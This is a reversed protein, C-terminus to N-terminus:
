AAPKSLQLQATTVEDPHLKRVSMQKLSGDPNLIILPAKTLHGRDNDDIVSNYGKSRLNNFYADNLPAKVFATDNFQKYFMLGLQQTELTKAEKKYPGSKMMERGTILKGTRTKISPTDFLETFADIREKESPSKLTELAKYQAEYKTKYTKAGGRQLLGLPMIAKYVENDKKNTTVYTLDRFTENERSTVRYITDGKKIPRPPKSSLKAYEEPSIVRPKLLDPDAGYKETITSKAFTKLNTRAEKRTDKSLTTKERRVGWKMGSVGYHALYDEESIVLTV